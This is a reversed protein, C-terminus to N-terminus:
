FNSVWFDQAIISVEATNDITVLMGTELNVCTTVELENDIDQTKIYYSGGKSLFCDGCEIHSLETTLYCNIHKDVVM